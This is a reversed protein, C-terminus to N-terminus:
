SARTRDTGATPEAPSQLGRLAKIMADVHEQEQARFYSAMHALRPSLAPIM